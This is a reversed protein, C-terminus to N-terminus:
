SKEEEKPSSMMGPIRKGHPDEPPYQIGESLKESMETDTFHELEMAREHVHDPRLGIEEVLFTEWLRHSRVLLEAEERGASTLQWVGNALCIKGDAKLSSVALTPLLGQAFGEWSDGQPQAKTGEAGREELRYLVGLADEKLVQIRLRFRRLTRALMGYRPALFVSGLLMVGSLSAIMGAGNLSFPLGLLQPGFAALVYGLIAVFVAVLTSLFLQWPMSDCLLRATAPPCILMSIVLISGVAEFSAVVTAAVLTMLLLHLTSASFGLSSSLAPDFASILFEKYFLLILLLCAVFIGFSRWVEPPLGSLVEALGINTIDAPLSLFISELQGHLLCDADLDVGRLNGQEILLVGLAFFISFVVGMSAGSEIRGLKRVLEVLVTTLVGACAAGLVIPLTDRSGSVLFGLVIGPLVAHSIADGM